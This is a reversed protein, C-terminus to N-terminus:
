KEVVLKDLEDELLKIRQADVSEGKIKLIFMLSKLHDDATLRWPANQSQTETTHILIVSKEQQEAGLEEFIDTDGPLQDDVSEHLSLFREINQDEGRAYTLLKVRVEDSIWGIDRYYTLIDPLHKRPVRQLLFELWRLVLIQTIYDNNLKELIYDSSSHSTDHSRETSDLPFDVSSSSDCQIDVSAM